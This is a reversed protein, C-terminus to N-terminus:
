AKLATLLGSLDGSLPRAGMGRLEDACGQEGPSHLLYIEKGLAYAFAAEILTNPGVYGAIDHKPFNAILIADSRKIKELHSDIFRRKLTPKQEVSLSRYFDESEEAEPILVSIGGRVLMSRLEEMQPYFRMSGCISVIRAMETSM